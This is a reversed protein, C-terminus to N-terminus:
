RLGRGDDDDNDRTAVRTPADLVEDITHIRVNGREIDTDVV